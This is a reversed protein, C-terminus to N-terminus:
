LFNILFTIKNFIVGAKFILPLKDSIYDQQIINEFAVVMRYESAIELFIEKWDDGKKPVPSNVNYLCRAHQDIHM